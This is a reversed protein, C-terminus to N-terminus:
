GVHDFQGGAALHDAVQDTPGAQWVQQPDATGLGVDLKQNAADDRRQPGRTEDPRVVPLRCDLM